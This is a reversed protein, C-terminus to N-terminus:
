YDFHTHIYVGNQSLSTAGTCSQPEKAWGERGAFSFPSQRVSGALSFAGPVNTNIYMTMLALPWVQLLNPMLKPLQAQMSARHSPTPTAQNFRGRKCERPNALVFCLRVFVCVIGQIALKQYPAPATLSGWSTPHSVIRFGGLEGHVRKRTSPPSTPRWTFIHECKNGDNDRKSKRLDVKINVTLDGHRDM